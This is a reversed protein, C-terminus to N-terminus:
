AGPTLERAALIGSRVAGEMTEPWGTATWAGALVVGPVATRTPPRRAAQGPSPDFTARPEKVCATRMVRAARAAPFLEALEHTVMRILEAKPQAVEGHAGSMSVTVRHDDGGSLADGNFAWQAPSDVIAVFPDEMVPRDFWVHVNVIPAAGTDPRTAAEPCLRSARQHPVALVVGDAPLSRGGGLEVSGEALREVGVGTILRAGRAALVRRAAPDVLETLGVRSWGVAAGHRSRFFGEQLVFIALAASVRESRDNCTPLVILDWFNRIAETGQGHRALWQAFTIDDLARRASPRLAGLALLARLATVKQRVTLLPYTAFSGSLHLPAPLPAARLAGRRGARDRVPVDMVPQLHTLHEVGLERIFQRYASCCGLFVHQGNDITTGDETFSFAKGGLFPRREVLTVHAGRASAELAAAIGALGGGCVVIRRESM